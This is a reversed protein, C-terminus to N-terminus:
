AKNENLLSRQSGHVKLAVSENGDFSQVLRVVVFTFQVNFDDIALLLDDVILSLHSWLASMWVM